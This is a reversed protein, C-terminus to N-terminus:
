FKFVLFEGKTNIFNEGYVMLSKCINGTNQNLFEALKLDPNLKQILIHENKCSEFACKFRKQYINYNEYICELCASNGCPLLYPNRYLHTRMRNVKCMFKSDIKFFKDNQFLHMKYVFANQNLDTFLFKENFVMELRLPTQIVWITSLSKKNVIEIEFRTAVFIFETKSPDVLVRRVVSSTQWFNIYNLNLDFINFYCKNSLESAWMYVYDNDLARNSFNEENKLSKKKKYRLKKDYIYVCNISDSFMYTNQNIPDYLIMTITSKFNVTQLNNGWKDYLEIQWPYFTDESVILIKKLHDIWYFKIHDDYVLIKNVIDGTAINFLKLYNSKDYKVLIEDNSIIKFSYMELQLHNVSILRMDPSYNEKKSHLFKFLFVKFHKIAEENTISNIPESIETAMFNNQRKACNIFVKLVNKNKNKAYDAEQKLIEFQECASTKFQIIINSKDIENLIQNKEEIKIRRHYM